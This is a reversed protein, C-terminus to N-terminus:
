GSQVYPPWPHKDQSLNLDTQVKWLPRTRLNPYSLPPGMNSECLTKSRTNCTTLHPCHCKAYILQLSSSHAGCQHSHIALHTYIDPQKSAQECTAMHFHLNFSRIRIYVYTEFKCMHQLEEFNMNLALQCSPGGVTQSWALPNVSPLM